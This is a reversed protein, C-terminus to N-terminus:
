DLKLGNRGLIFTKLFDLITVSSTKLVNKSINISRIQINKIHGFRGVHTKFM